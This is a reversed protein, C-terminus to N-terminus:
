RAHYAGARRHTRRHTRRHAHRHRYYLRRRHYGYPHSYFGYGVGYRFSAPPDREIRIVLDGDGDDGEVPVLASRVLGPALSLGEHEARLKKEVAVRRDRVVVVLEGDEDRAAEFTGIYVAEGAKANFRITDDTVRYAGFKRIEYRGPPVAVLFAGAGPRVEWTRREPGFWRMRPALRSGGFSFSGAVLADGDPLRGPEVGHVTRACAAALLLLALLPIRRNM